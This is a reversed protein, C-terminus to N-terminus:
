FLQYWNKFSLDNLFRQLNHIKRLNIEMEEKCKLSCTGQFDIEFLNADNNTDGSGNGNGMKTKNNLQIMLKNQLEKVMLQSALL